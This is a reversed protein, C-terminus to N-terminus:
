NGAKVKGVFVIKGGVKCTAVGQHEWFEIGEGTYRAGSASVARHLRVKRKDPFTVLATANRNDYEAKLTEGNKSVFLGVPNMDDAALVTALVATLLVQAIKKKM